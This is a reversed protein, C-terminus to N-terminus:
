PFVCSRFLHNLSRSLAMSRNGPCDVTGLGVCARVTQSRAAKDPHRKGSFRIDPGVVGEGRALVRSPYRLALQLHKAYNWQRGRGSGSWHHTECESVHGDAGASLDRNRVRGAPLASYRGGCCRCLSVVPGSFDDGCSEGIWVEGQRTSPFRRMSVSHRFGVSRAADVPISLSPGLGFPADFAMDADREFREVRLGCVSLCALVGEM